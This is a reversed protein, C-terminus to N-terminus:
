PAPVLMVVRYFGSRHLSVGSDSLDVVGSVALNATTSVETWVAPNLTESWELRCRRGGVGYVTLRIQDTNVVVQSIQFVVDFPASDSKHNACDDARLVIDRAPQDIEGLGSWVGNSFSLSTLSLGALIPTESGYVLDVYWWQVGDNSIPFGDRRM